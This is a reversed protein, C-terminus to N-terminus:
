FVRKGMEKYKKEKEKKWQEDSLSLYDVNTKETRRPTQSGTRTRDAEEDADKQQKAVRQRINGAAIRFIADIKLDSVRPNKSLLDLVKSELDGYLSKNTEDRLFETARFRNDQDRAQKQFPNLSKQVEKAIIKRTDDDTELDEDEDNKPKEPEEEPEINERLPDYEPIEEEDAPNPDDEPNDDPAPDGGEGPDDNVPDEEEEEEEWEEWNSPKGLLWLLKDKLM